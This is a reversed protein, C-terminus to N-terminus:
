LTYKILSYSTDAGLTKQLGIIGRDNSYAIIHRCGKSRAYLKLLEFGEKWDEMSLVRPDVVSSLSYILLDPNLSDVHNVLSTTMVVVIKLGTGEVFGFTHVTLAGSLISALINAMRSPDDSATPPLAREISPRLEEWHSAVQDPLLELMRLESM